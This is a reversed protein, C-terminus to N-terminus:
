AGPQSLWRAFRFVRVVVALRVAWAFGADPELGAAVPVAVEPVAVELGAVELGAAESAAAEPVAVAPVADSERGAVEPEVAESVGASVAVEPEWM